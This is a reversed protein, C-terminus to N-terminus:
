GGNGSGAPKHKQKYVGSRPSHWLIKISVDVEKDLRGLHPMCLEALLM